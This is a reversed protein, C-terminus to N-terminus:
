VSIKKVTCCYNGAEEIIEVTEIGCSKKLEDFLANLEPLSFVHYYRQMSSKVWGGKGNWPVYVDKEASGEIGVGLENWVTFLATGSPKLLQLADTVLQRRREPSSIHHLMAVCIMADFRRNLKDCELMELANLVYVRSGPNKDRAIDVLKACADIGIMDLDPRYSLYKGNGCGIDLVRSGTELGDLFRTVCPWRSFRTADFEHAIADYIAHVHDREVDDIETMKIITCSVLQLYDVDHMM